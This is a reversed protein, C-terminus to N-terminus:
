GGGVLSTFGKVVAEALDAGSGTGAQQVLAIVALAVPALYTIMETYTSLGSLERLRHWSGGADHVTKLDYWTGLVALFVFLQLFRYLWPVDAPAELWVDVVETTLAAVLWILALVAGKVAGLRGPLVAYLAGFVFAAVVWRFIETVAAVIMALLGSSWALNQPLAQVLNWLFFGVPVTSLWIGMRAASKGNAWWSGHHGRRLFDTITTRYEHRRQRANGAVELTLQASPLAKDLETLEREGAAARVARRLSEVPAEGTGPEASFRRRWLVVKRAVLWTVLWGPFALVGVFVADPAPVALAFLFALGGVAVASPLVAVGRAHPTLERLTVGALLLAAAFTVSAGISRSASAMEAVFRLTGIPEGAVAMGASRGVVYLLAFLLALIATTLGTREFLRGSGDRQAPLSGIPQLQRAVAVIGLVTIIVLASVPLISAAWGTVVPILAAGFLVASAGWMARDAWRSGAPTLVIFLAWALVAWLEAVGPRSGFVGAVSFMAIGFLLALPQRVVVWTGALRRLVVAASALLVLLMVSVVVASWAIYLEVYWSSPELEGNRIQQKGEWAWRTVSGSRVWTAVFERWPPTARVVVTAPPQKEFTWELSVMEAQGEGTRRSSQPAPVASLHEYAVPLRVVVTTRTAPRCLVDAGDEPGCLAIGLRIRNDEFGTQVTRVDDGAPDLNIFPVSSVVLTVKTTGDDQRQVARTTLQGTSHGFCAAYREPMEVFDAGRAAGKALTVEIDGAAQAVRDATSVTFTADVSDVDGAPCDSVPADGPVRTTYGSIFGSSLGAVAVLLVLWMRM